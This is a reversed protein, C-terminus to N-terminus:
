CKQGRIGANKDKSLCKAIPLNSPASKLLSMIKVNCDLGIWILDKKDLIEPSKNKSLVKYSSFNLPASKLHPLHKKSNSNISRILDM